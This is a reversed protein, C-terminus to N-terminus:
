FLQHTEPAFINVLVRLPKVAPLCENLKPVCQTVTAKLIFQLCGSMKFHSHYAANTSNHHISILNALVHDCLCHSVLNTYLTWGLLACPFYLLKILEPGSCLSRTVNCGRIDARNAFMHPLIRICTSIQYRNAPIVRTLCLKPLLKVILLFYFLLSRVHHM